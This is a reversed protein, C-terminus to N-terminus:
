VEMQKDDVPDGHSLCPLSKGGCEGGGLSSGGALLLVSHCGNLLRCSKSKAHCWKISNSLESLLILLPRSRHAAETTSNPPVAVHFDAASSYSVM